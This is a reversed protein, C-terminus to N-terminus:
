RKSRASRVASLCERLQGLFEDFYATEESTFSKIRRVREVDAIRLELVEPLCGTAWLSLEIVVMEGM